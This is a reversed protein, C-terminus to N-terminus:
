GAEAMMDWACSLREEEMLLGRHTLVVPRMGMREERYATVRMKVLQLRV